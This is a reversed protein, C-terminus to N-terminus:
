GWSQGLEEVLSKTYRVAPIANGYKMRAPGFVGVYGSRGGLVYPTFVFASNVLNEHGIETGIVCRVNGTNAAKNFIENLLEYRDLLHLATKTVEIDWFEIHDLINVAGAYVVHGEDTTALALLKTIDALSVTAQRLLKEFEYRTSWLRQKIAVEQLVPLESEEMIEDLFVRYALTTPVRGSSTHLMELFGKSLLDAMENRITAASCKLVYKKAITQSGVPESTDLYERIIADLLKIQRETLDTIM